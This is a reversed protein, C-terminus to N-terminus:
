DDLTLYRSWTAFKKEGIGDIDMLQELSTFGGIADRYEIIKTATVEGIGSILMLEEKTATNLNLMGNFATTSTVSPRTSTTTTTMVTTTTTTVTSTAASTTVSEEITLFEKWTNLKKEGVGDVDLLQELFTYKGIKERYEIINQATKDGIGEIQMLQAATAANLDIKGVFATTTTTAAETDYVPYEVVINSKPFGWKWAATVGLAFFVFGSVAVLLISFLVDRKKQKM